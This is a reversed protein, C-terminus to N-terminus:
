AAEYTISFSINDSTTWTFPSTNTINSAESWTNAVYQAFVVLKANTLVLVMGPYNQVGNDLIRATGIYTNNPTAITVPPSFELTSGTASTTSGWTLSLTAHVFKGIQVFRGSLTGNGLTLNTVTPTWASYAYTAGPVAGWKMGTSATSDAILVQDNTGIALRAPTNDATAAILDGKADVLSKPIAGNALDYASKVATPTAAL